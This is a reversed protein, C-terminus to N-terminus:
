QYGYPSGMEPYTAMPVHGRIAIPWTEQHVLTASPVWRPVISKVFIIIESVTIVSNDNKLSSEQM